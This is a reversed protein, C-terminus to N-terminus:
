LAKLYLEDELIAVARVPSGDGDKIRLPFGYFTFAKDPPLLDLNVLDTYTVIGRRLLRRELDETLPGGVFPPAAAIISEALAIGAESLFFLGVGTPFAAGATVVVAKGFFRDLPIQDISPMGAHMHSFADAHTGTHTGMSIKRLEWGRGQHRHVVEVNVEPDGPYVSMGTHISQSLDIIRM